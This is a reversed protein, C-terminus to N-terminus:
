DPIPFPAESRTICIIDNDASLAFVLPKLTQHERIWETMLVTGLHSQSCNEWGM